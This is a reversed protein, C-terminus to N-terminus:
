PSDIETPEPGYRTDLREIEDQVAVQMEEADQDELPKVFDGINEQRMRRMLSRVLFNRIEKLSGLRAVADDRLGDTVTITIQAM